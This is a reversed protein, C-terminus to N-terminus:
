LHRPDVITIEGEVMQGTFTFRPGFIRYNVPADKPDFFVTFAFSDGAHGGGIGGDVAEIFYTAHEPVTRSGLTVKAQGVETACSLGGRMTVRRKGDPRTAVEYQEVSTAVMSMFFAHPKVVVEGLQYTRMKFAKANTDVRCVAHHRDFSFVEELPVTPQGTIPDPMMKLNVGGGSATNYSLQRLHDQLVTVENELSALHARQTHLTYSVAAVIVAASFVLSAARASVAAM